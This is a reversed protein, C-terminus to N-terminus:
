REFLKVFSSVYKEESFEPEWFYTIFDTVFEKSSELDKTPDTAM